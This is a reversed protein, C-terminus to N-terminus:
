GNLSVEGVFNMPVHPFLEFTKPDLFGALETILGDRVSVVNIASLPYSGDDAANDSGTVDRQMYCALALQDNARIPRVRWPRENLRDALFRRVAARGTFWAPLPPMTFRADEALLATLADVDARQWADVLKDLLERRGGAGLAALEDRQSTAPGREAMTKRARQLASNVSAPTTDLVEAVEGASLQLVERLLLVARQTGPLHQLAAVFALEVDEQAVLADAPDSPGNPEDPRSPLNAWPELWIPELIPAGLDAPDTFAPGYDPSLVRQPRRKILRLCANTAIKYLWARASSRGEFGEYGRWAGLLAEQLADEADHVSGLMRYCHALLERRYAAVLEDFTM